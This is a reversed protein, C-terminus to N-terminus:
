IKGLEMYVHPCCNQAPVVLRNGSVCSSVIRTYVDFLTDVCWCCAICSAIYMRLAVPPVNDSVGEMSMPDRMGSVGSLSAASIDEVAMEAARVWSSLPPIVVSRMDSQALM